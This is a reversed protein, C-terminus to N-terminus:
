KRTIVAKKYLANRNRLLRVWALLILLVSFFASVRGIADGHKVYFTIEDNLHVMGSLATPVWWESRQVIDGRQDIFCSIGTNASRAISRRTEIARISAFSLHQKYGPSTGWWGDNTIIAIMNAGNKVHAAVHEGFVSEYCIMSAVTLGATRDTFNAREHQVGHTGNTGGMDIALETLPGLYNEFPMLEVGAVLKSKHYRDIDGAATLFLAANYSEIWYPTGEILRAAITREQMPAYLYKSSMGTLVAVQNQQQFELIRKVSEARTLDNEWLGHLRPPEHQLDLTAAEQLATEPMVVLVTNPTIKKEALSLMRDLQQLPDVGGFKELYPDINPQVVVVEVPRGEDTRDYYVSFSIMLPVILLLLAVASRIAWVVIGRGNLYARIARDFFLNVLLIWLTGGLIGSYEYWQIWSPRIAFVNGLSFWPWQMDWDHDLWEYTIWFFILAFAAEREGITSRVIRKLWWPISMLLTNVLVPVGYSAIKTPLPESVMFFWWSTALNWVLFTLMAYPTFALKRDGARRDHLREAHLLPLWAIFALPTLEGIAPWALAWLVGSAVAWLVVHTRTIAM